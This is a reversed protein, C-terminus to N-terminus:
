QAGPGDAPTFVHGDWQLAGQANPYGVQASLFAVPEGVWQQAADPWNVTPKVIRTVKRDWDELDVNTFYVQEKSPDARIADGIGDLTGSIQFPQLYAIERTEHYDLSLSTRQTRLKLAGGGGFGLFGGSAEAPQENFPAPDFIAQKALDMFKQFVLDSR